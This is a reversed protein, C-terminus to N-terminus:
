VHHHISEELYPDNSPTLDSSTLSRFVMYMFLSLFGIMSGIEFITPYPFIEQKTGTLYYIAETTFPKLSLYMDLWHGVFTIVAVTILIWYTKKAVNVMLAVFPIVFNMILILYFLVPYKDQQLKFHATEEGVNGFWILMYQSFFLYAWFVSFAFLYKGLDHMHQSSVNQFYNQKKLYILVIIFLSIMAVFWSSAIYWAYLTSYWHVEVSMIWLWILVASTIGAVPLFIAGWNRMQKHYSYDGKVGADELKSLTRLRNRFFLWLGVFAATLFFYIHNNLFPTKGQILVDKEIMAEDTWLYLNHWGLYNGVGIILMIIVGPWLFINFAELLRRFVTYWGALSAIFASLTFLAMLSLGIFFTNNLLLDSWFGTKFDDAVVFYQILLSILGVIM